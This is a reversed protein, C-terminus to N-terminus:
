SRPTTALWTAGVRGSGGVSKLKMGRVGGATRGMARVDNEDFRITMGGRSVMFIDDSGSTEIVRM